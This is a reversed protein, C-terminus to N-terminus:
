FLLNFICKWYIIFNICDKNCNKLFRMAPSICHIPSLNFFRCNMWWNLKTAFDPKCCPFTLSNKFRYIWYSFIPCVMTVIIQGMLPSRPIRVGPGTVTLLKWSQRLRGSQWSEAAFTLTWNKNVFGNAFKQWIIKM